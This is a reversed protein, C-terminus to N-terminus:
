FSLCLVENKFYKINYIMVKYGFDPLFVCHFISPRYGTEKLWQCTCKTAIVQHSNSKLRKRGPTCTKYDLNSKFILEAIKLRGSM